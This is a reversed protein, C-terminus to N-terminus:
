KIGPNRNIAGRVGLLEPHRAIKDSFVRADAIIPKLQQTLQDINRAARNIHCYLERDKLLMGLSGESDNLKRSFTALNTMLGELQDITDFVQEIRQRGDTGLPETFEKLNQLNADALDVTTRLRKLTDPLEKLSQRLQIRTEDDGIINDLHEAAKGVKVFSSDITNIVRDVKGDPQILNSVDNAAKHLAVSAEKLAGGTDNVTGITQSIAKQWDQVLLTPSRLYKGKMTGKGNDPIQRRKPGGPTKDSLVKTRRDGGAAGAPAKAATHITSTESMSDSSVAEAAQERPPTKRAIELWTDGLLSTQLYCEEDTYLKRDKDIMVTVEVKSDETLKVESVRGILVGSKRVPTQKAVGPAEDFTITVKYQGRLKPGERFVVILIAAIILTALVMVGVRFQMIREDM